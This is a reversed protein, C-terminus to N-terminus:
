GMRSAIEAKKSMDLEAYIQSTDARSHDLMTQAADLGFTSRVRTAYSHRLQNPSWTPIGHKRCTKALTHSYGVPRICTKVNRRGRFLFERDNLEAVKIWHDLIERAQPGVALRRQKKRWATKHNKGKDIIWPDGTRRVESITLNCVEGPRMGTYWQLLVMSKWPEHLHQLTREVIAWEVPEVPDTERASSRFAPLGRYVKAMLACQDSVYNNEHMWGICRRVRGLRQNIYKRSLGRKLLKDKLRNLHEKTLEAPADDETLEIFAREINYVDKSITGNPLRYYTRCHHFYSPLVQSLQLPQDLLQRAKEEGEEAKCLKRYRGGTETVWWGQHLYPKPKRPM